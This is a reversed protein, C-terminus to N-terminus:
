ACANSRVQLVEETPTWEHQFHNRTTADDLDGTLELALNIAPLPFGQGDKVRDLLRIAQEYTM